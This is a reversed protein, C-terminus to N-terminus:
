RITWTRYADIFENICQTVHISHKVHFLDVTLRNAQLIQYYRNKDFHGNSDMFYPQRQISAALEDNSVVVGLKQATQELIAEDVLRDLIEQQLKEIESSSPTEGKTSYLKDLAPRYTNDFDSTTIRIDGVQAVLNPDRQSGAGTYKMGWAFFIIGVFAAIVGWIIFQVTKKDRLTRMM